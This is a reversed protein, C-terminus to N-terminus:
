SRQESPGAPVTEKTLAAPAPPTRQELAELRRLFPEAQLELLIMRAEDAAATAGNGTPASPQWCTSTVSPSTSRSASTAGSGLRM